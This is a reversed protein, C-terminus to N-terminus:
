TRKQRALAVLHAFLSRHLPHGALLEPHWQVAVIEPHGDVEVAEITGDPAWGVARVGPALGGVAQHHLSNADLETIGLMAALRCSPDLRVAHVPEDYREAWGHRAGTASPVHQVLGGGLAVNLVQVGRCIALIPLREAM